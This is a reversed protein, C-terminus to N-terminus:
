ACRSRRLRVAKVPEAQCREPNPRKSWFCLRGAFVTANPLTAARRVWQRACFSKTFKRSNVPSSLGRKPDLSQKLMPSLTSLGIRRKTFSSPGRLERSRLTKQWSKSGVAARAPRRRFFDSSTFNAESVLWGGPDSIGPMGADSVVAIRAGAKLEAILEAARQRENHEHCSITPTEIQFHNLLKQTQRTDECAIRDVGKLVNLARLTIDGLNGIPTAVLYLGPALRSEAGSEM